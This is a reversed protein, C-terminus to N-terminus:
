VGASFAAEDDGEVVASVLNLRPISLEGVLTGRALRAPAEARSWPPPVHRMADLARRHGRRELHAAGLVLGSWVLCLVGVLVLSREVRTWGRGPELGTGIM